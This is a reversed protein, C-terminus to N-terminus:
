AFYQVISETLSEITYEPPILDVAFGNEQATEATIPGICAVTTEAMWKKLKERDAEFMEVFNTVTSSSTFTVMEIDGQEMMNKVGAIDSDAKFTQYAPVVDVEAGMKRLRDPLIERAKAARPLLIRMGKIGLQEFCEAVAEARYEDPLLDPEIGMDQWSEATKPGIAGIKLGKLDRVDKGLAKLRTLFYKVGNVSTFLLWNYSELADIAKDLFEWTQPPTIKITPFEICGAGLRTLDRLFQSAQERARTVMIRRGFLPRKEFWNLENRLRVVDGVVIVAPPGLENEKALRAINELTGVLTRQEVVTGRRVVAVPTDPARGHDILRQAISALNGVGMLFVLTGAGTALKDWAVESRGKGPDEHGTIFAVTSTHDRHTLPIGAYAPVAIASSIGPVIEFDLGASSLKQAEEGGRGFIFPDGGKLRVVMLGSLTKDVILSSIEEQSMTHCGGKKGVYILDADGRAYELLEQNALYDYVIVDARSICERGKITLLGPDGPGAGVLYTKGKKKREM